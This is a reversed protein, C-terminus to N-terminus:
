DKLKYPIAPASSDCRIRPLQGLWHENAENAITAVQVRLADRDAIIQLAVPQIKDRERSVAAAVAEQQTRCASCESGGDPVGDSDETAALCMRPHGCEMLSVADYLLRIDAALRDKERAYYHISTTTGVMFEADDRLREVAQKLEETM